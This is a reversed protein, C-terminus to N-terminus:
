EVEAYKQVFAHFVEMDSPSLAGQELQERLFALLTQHHVTETERMRKFMGPANERIVELLAQHLKQEQEGKGFRLEVVHKVLDGHNHEQLWQVAAVRGPGEKPWGARVEERLRVVLGDDTGLHKLGVGDMLSPIDRERLQQAREKAAELKTELEEVESDANALLKVMRRLQALKEVPPAEVEVEESM